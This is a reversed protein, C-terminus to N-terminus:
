GCAAEEAMLRAVTERAESMQVLMLRYVTLRANPDSHCPLEALEDLLGTVQQELREFLTNM